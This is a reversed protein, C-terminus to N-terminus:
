VSVSPIFGGHFANRSFNVNVCSTLRSGAKVSGVIESDHEPLAYSKSKNQIVETQNMNRV